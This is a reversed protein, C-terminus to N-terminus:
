QATPARTGSREGLRSLHALGLALVVVLLGSGTKQRTLLFIALYAAPLSCGLLLLGLLEAPSLRGPPLRRTPSRLSCAALLMWLLFAAIGSCVKAEALHDPFFARLDDMLLPRLSGAYLLLWLAVAILLYRMRRAARQALSGQEPALSPEGPELVLRDGGGSCCRGAAYVYALLSLAYLGALPLSLDREATLPRHLLLPLLLSVPFLGLLWLPRARRYSGWLLLPLPLLLVAIGGGAGPWGQQEAPLLVLLLWLHIGLLLPIFRAMGAWIYRM